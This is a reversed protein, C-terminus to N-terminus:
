FRDVLISLKMKVKEAGLAILKKQAMDNLAIDMKKSALFELITNYGSCEMKEGLAVGARFAVFNKADAEKLKLNKHYFDAEDEHNDKTWLKYMAYTLATKDRQYNM